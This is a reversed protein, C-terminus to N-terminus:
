EVPSSLLRFYAEKINPRNGIRQTHPRNAYDTQLSGTNHLLERAAAPSMPAVGRAKLTGQLCAVSGVIVPSASSTGSFTDTYYLDEDGAQLDGYGCTTVERGWGQADVAAGYNSFDLRSRDAGHNRGHTGPPPAGAGVLIAGSDRAGRRFPNKWSSPFGKDPTDYASHDLDEAGNGAAEIVLIGRSTAYKIADYDDPWWEIAIFGQQGWGTSRPGPRHLEILIIDGPQLLTAAKVIAGATGTGGFISVAGIKAEPAIGTVGFENQDAGIVGVVATGHDRWGRDKTPTGGVVGNKNQQLDEHAFNWGGEIDIVTVGAGKGGPKTWSFEAEVGAPAEGTYIQRGTFNPTKEIPPEGEEFDGDPYYAPTAAPKIYTSVVGPAALLLNALEELHQDEAIVRHYCRMEKPLSFLIKKDFLPVCKAEVHSALKSINLLLQPTIDSETVVILEREQIFM